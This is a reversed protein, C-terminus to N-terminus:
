KRKDNHKELLAVACSLNENRVDYWVSSRIIKNKLAYLYKRLFRPLKLVGLLFFAKLVEKYDKSIDTSLIRHDIKECEGFKNICFQYNKNIGSVVFSAIESSSDEIENLIPMVNRKGASALASYVHLEQYLAAAHMFPMDKIEEFLKKLIVPTNLFNEKENKYNQGFYRLKSESKCYFKEDVGGVVVLPMNITLIKKSVSALLPHANWDPFVGSYVEGYLKKAKSLVRKSFM